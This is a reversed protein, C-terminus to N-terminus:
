GQKSDKGEKSDKVKGEKNEKGEKGEKEKSDKEKGEKGDRSSKHSREGEAPKGVLSSYYVRDGGHRGSAADAALSRVRRHPLGLGLNHLM